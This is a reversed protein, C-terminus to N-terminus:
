PSRIAVLSHRRLVGDADFELMLNYQVGLWNDRHGVLVYGAEDKSLRYALIRSEEYQASPEGLQLQVDERRTKGDKLFDLLDERGMPTTACALLAMCAIALMWLKQPAMSTM